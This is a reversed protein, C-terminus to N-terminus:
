MLHDSRFAQTLEVDSQLDLLKMQFNDPATTADIAAPHQSYKWWPCEYEDTLDSLLMDYMEFSGKVEHKSLTPFRTTSGRALQTKWLRLKAIFATMTGYLDHCLKNNGQLFRNWSSLPTTFPHHWGYIGFGCNVRRQEASPYLALM